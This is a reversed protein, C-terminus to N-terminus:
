AEGNKDLLIEEEEEEEKFLDRLRQTVEKIHQEAAEKADNYIDDANNFFVDVIQHAQERTFELYLKDLSGIFAYEEIMDNFKLHFMDYFEQKTM